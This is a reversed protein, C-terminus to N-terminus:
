PNFKLSIIFISYDMTLLGHTIKAACSSNSLELGLWQHFRHSNCIGNFTSGGYAKYRIGKAENGV